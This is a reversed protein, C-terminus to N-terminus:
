FGMKVILQKTMPADKRNIAALLKFYMKQIYERHAFSNTKTAMEQIQNFRQQWTMKNVGAELKNTIKELRIYIIIVIHNYSTM